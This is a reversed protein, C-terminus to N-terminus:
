ILSLAENKSLRTEYGKPHHISPSSAGHSINKRMEHPTMGLKARFMKTMYKQDSFGSESAVESISLGNDYILRMAHEFRLNGLHEQFSIGLKETFIHSLYTPTVGEAKAIDFLRPSYRYNEDLYSLVSRIVRSFIINEYLEYNEKKEIDKVYNPFYLWDDCVWCGNGGYTKYSKNNSDYCRRIMDRWRNYLIHSQPNEIELGVIGKGCVYPSLWDRISGNKIEKPDSLTSYGSDFLVKRKTKGNVRVIEIVKFKYGMNNVGEYGVDCTIGMYGVEM